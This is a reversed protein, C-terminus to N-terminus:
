GYCCVGGTRKSITKIQKGVKESQLVKRQVAEWMALVARLLSSLPPVHLEDAVWISSRVACPYIYIFPLSIIKFCTITLPDTLRYIYHWDPSVEGGPCVCPNPNTWHVLVQVENTSSWTISRSEIFYWAQFWVWTYPLYPLLAVTCYM